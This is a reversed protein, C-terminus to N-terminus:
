PLLAGQLPFALPRHMEQFCNISSPWIQFIFEEELVQWIKAYMQRYQLFLQNWYWILYYLLHLSFLIVFRCCHILHPVGVFIHYFILLKRCCLVLFRGFYPYYIAHWLPGMRSIPFMSTNSWRRTWCSRRGLNLIYTSLQLKRILIMERNLILIQYLVLFYNRLTHRLSQHLEKRSSLRM